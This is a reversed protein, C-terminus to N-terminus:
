LNELIKNLRFKINQIEKDDYKSDVKYNFVSQYTGIDRNFYNSMSNYFEKGQRYLITLLAPNHTELVYILIRIAKGKETSFENKIKRAFLENKEITLYEHFAKTSVTSSKPTTQYTSETNLLLSEDWNSGIYEISMGIDFWDADLINIGFFKEFAMLIDVETLTDPEKAFTFFKNHYMKYIVRIFQETKEPNLKFNFEYATNKFSDMKKDYEDSRNSLEEMIKDLDLNLKLSRLGISTYLSSIEDVENVSLNSNLLRMKKYFSTLDIEIDKSINEIDYKGPKWTILKDFTSNAVEVIKNYKCYEKNAACEWLEEKIEFVNIDSIIKNASNLKSIIVAPLDFSLESSDYVLSIIEFISNIKEEITKLKEM